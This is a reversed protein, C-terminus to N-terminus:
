IKKLSDIKSTLSINIIKIDGNISLKIERNNEIYNDDIINFATILVPILENRFLIKCFFGTGISEGYVSCICRKMQNLIIETKEISIPEIAERM